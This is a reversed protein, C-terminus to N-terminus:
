ARPADQRPRRRTNWLHVLERAAAVRDGNNAIASIMAAMSAGTAAVEALNDRNIGGIAAVPLRTARVIAAIGAVGIPVGADNKTATAAFPGAGVYDAGRRQAQMAEAPTGCSIGLVKESGIRTRLDATETLALDTQGLHVGDADAIAAIDDNVILLAGAAMTRAHLQRLVACDTGTKARYQVLRIGAQLVAQLLSELDPSVEADIIAYIGCLRKLM